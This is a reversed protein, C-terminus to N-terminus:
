MDAIRRESGEGEPAVGQRQRATVGMEDEAVWQGMAVAGYAHGGVM